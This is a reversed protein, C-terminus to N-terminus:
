ARREQWQRVLAAIQPLGETIASPGPSLIDASKVEAVLGDRLAPIADWGARAALSEPRFKKGCWSGIIIEPARRVVEQPDAIIRASAGAQAALEPFIDEGGAIAILESVWGIGSILPDNWEEFYIKPCVHWQAAEARVADIQAQLTGALARGAEQKGTLAALVEIMRFIGAIDRQNFLHVEVGAAALESCIGAQMDSFGIVLDPQVALIREIRSSSFGSVKPKEARARAPRTTFGSIGAILDEAGLAYLTEVAETSLCAIRRYTM